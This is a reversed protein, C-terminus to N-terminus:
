GCLGPLYQLPDVRTGNVRVEFHLHNGTAAGTQGVYGVLTGATVTQNIQLNSPKIMHAYVTSIGNNGTIIVYYGYGDSDYGNVTVTGDQAAYIPTNAARAIDIGGHSKLIGSIPHIRNGFLSSCNGTTELPNMLGYSNIEGNISDVKLTTSLTGTDYYFSLIENYNKSEETSMYYAGYQSMGRGHGGDGDTGCPNELYSTGSWKPVNAYAWSVPIKQHKQALYYYMSDKSEYCFADYETSILNGSGDTMIQGSTQAVADIIQQNTTPRFAQTNNGSTIYCVGDSNQSRTFLYTRAAVSFAKFTETDRFGGVEHDIVGAVYDDLTYTGIYDGDTITVNECVNMDVYTLNESGSMGCIKYIGFNEIELEKARLYEEIITKYDAGSNLAAVNPEITPSYGIIIENKSNLTGYSVLNYKSDVQENSEDFDDETSNSIISVNNFKTKDNLTCTSNEFDMDAYTILDTNVILGMAKYVEANDYTGFYYNVAGALYETIDYTGASPGSPIIVSDCSTINICNVGNEDVDLSKGSQGVMIFGIIIVIIFLLIYVGIFSSAVLKIPISAEGFIKSKKKLALPNSQEDNKSTNDEKSNQENSNSDNQKSDESNQKPEKNEQVDNNEQDIEFDKIQKPSNVKSILIPTNALNKIITKSNINKGIQKGLFGGIKSGIPGGLYTGAIKGAKEGANETVKQTGKQVISNGNGETDFSGNSVRSTKNFTQPQEKDNKELDNVYSSNVKPPLVGNNNFSNIGTNDQNNPYQKRNNLKQQEGLKNVGNNSTTNIKNQDKKEESNDM